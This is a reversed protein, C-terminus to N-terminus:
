LAKDISFNHQRPGFGQEAVDEVLKDVEGPTEDPFGKPIPPLDKL